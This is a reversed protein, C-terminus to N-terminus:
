NKVFEKVNLWELYVHGCRPCSSSASMGEQIIKEFEFNCGPFDKTGCKYKLIRDMKCM